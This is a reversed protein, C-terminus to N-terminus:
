IPTALSKGNAEKLTITKNNKLDLNYLCNYLVGSIEVTPSDFTDFNKEFKM